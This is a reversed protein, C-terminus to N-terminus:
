QALRGGPLVGAVALKSAKLEWKRVESTVIGVHSGGGLDIVLLAPSINLKADTKFTEESGDRYFVTVEFM